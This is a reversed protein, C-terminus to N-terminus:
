NETHITEIFVLLLKEAQKRERESLTSLIINLGENETTQQTGNVIYDTTIHLASALRRLTTITMSKKGKEIDALFQVSIDALEALCERTYGRLKRIKAIRLGVDSNLTNM